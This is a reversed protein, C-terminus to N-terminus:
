INGYNKPQGTLKGVININLTDEAGEPVNSQKVRYRRGVSAAGVRSVGHYVEGQDLVLGIAHCVSRIYAAM